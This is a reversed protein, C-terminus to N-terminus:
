CAFVSAQPASPPSLLPTSEAVGLVSAVLDDFPTGDILRPLPYTDSDWMQEFYPVVVRGGVNAFVNEYSSPTYYSFREDDSVARHHRTREDDGFNDLFLVHEVGAILEIRPDGRWFSIVEVAGHRRSKLDGYLVEEVDFVAVTIPEGYFKDFWHDISVPVGIVVLDVTPTMEGVSKWDDSVPPFGVCGLPDFENWFAYLRDRDTSGPITTPAPTPSAPWPTAPAEGVFSVDVSGALVADRFTIFIPLGLVADCPPHRAAVLEYGDPAGSFTFTMGADCPGTQWVVELGIDDFPNSVSIEGHLPVLYDTQLCGVV